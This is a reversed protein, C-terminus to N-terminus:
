RQREGVGRRHPGVRQAGIVGRGPEVRARDPAGLLSAGSEVRANRCPARQARNREGAARQQGEGCRKLRHARPRGFAAAGSSRNVRARVKSAIATASASAACHHDCVMHHKATAVAEDDLLNLPLPLHKCENVYGFVADGTRVVILEFAGWGKGFVVVRSAGDAVDAFACVDTGAAPAGRGGSSPNATVGTRESRRRVSLRGRSSAVHLGCQGPRRSRDDFWSRTSCCRFTTVGAAYQAQTAQLVERANALEAQTQMFAANASVLSVLTQKVNLQIGERTIELAAIAAELQGHAQEIQAHTIGQDFIPITLSVGISGSNRYRRGCRDTSGTGYSATGSLNPFLGLGAAKLSSQQSAVSYQQALFDPRLLYARDIAVRLM